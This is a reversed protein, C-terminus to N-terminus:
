IFLMDVIRKDECGSHSRRLFTKIRKGDLNEVVDSRKKEKLSDGGQLYHAV